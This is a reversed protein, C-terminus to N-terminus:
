DKGIRINYKLLASSIKPRDTKKTLTQKSRYVIEGSKNVYGITGNIFWVKALGCYFLDADDFQPTIVFNGSQDIYGWNSNKMVPALGGCFGILVDDFQPEIVFNGSLDIFGWKNNIQVAALGESFVCASTFQPQIVFQGDTNIFGLLQSKPDDVVALGYMFITGQIFDGQFKYQNLPTLYGRKEGKRFVLALGESFTTISEYEIPIVINGTADIVGAKSGKYVVALGENFKTTHDYQFPIVAQGNMDIYGFLWKKIDGMPAMGESSFYSESVLRYKAPVAMTGAADLYGAYQVGYKDDIVMARNGSFLQADAYSAGYIISGNQDIFGWRHNENEYPFLGTAQHILISLINKGNPQCECNYDPAPDSDKKCGYLLIIALSVCLITKM